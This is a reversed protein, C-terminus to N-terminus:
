LLTELDEAFLSHDGDMFVLVEATDPVAAIGALCAAGYGRPRADVVRAGGARAAAATGDTSGNDAVILHYASVSSLRPLVDNLGRLVQPLAQAENLAPIIIVLEM